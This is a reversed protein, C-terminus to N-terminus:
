KFSFKECVKKISLDKEELNKIEYIFDEPKLNLLFDDM